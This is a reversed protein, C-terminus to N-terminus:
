HRLEVVTPRKGLYFLLRRATPRRHTDNRLGGSVDNTLFQQEHNTVPTGAVEVFPGEFCNM